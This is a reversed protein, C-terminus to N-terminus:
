LWASVIPCNPSQYTTASTAKAQVQTTTTPTTAKKASDLPQNAASDFKKVNADVVGVQDKVVVHKAPINSILHGRQTNNANERSKNVEAKDVLANNSNVGYQKKGDVGSSGVKIHKGDHGSTQYFSPFKQIANVDKVRILAEQQVRAVLEGNQNYFDGCLLAKSNAFHPSHVDYLLWEDAKVNTNFFHITHDLSALQLHQSLSAMQHPKTAAAIIGWDSMYALAIQQLLAMLTPKQPQFLEESVKVGENHGLLTGTSEPNPYFKKITTTTTTTKTAQKPPLANSQHLDAQPSIHTNDDDVSIKGKIKVWMLRRAPRKTPEDSWNEWAVDERNVWKIDFPVERRASYYLLQRNRLSLNENTSLEFMDQTLSPLTDYHPVTSMDYVQTHSHVNLDPAAFQLLCSFIVNGYQVADVRRTVFAKTDKLPTVKYVIPEEDDGPRIFYGHFSHISHKTPDITNVCATISQAVLMGGYVRGWKYLSTDCEGRFIWNDIRELHLISKLATPETTTTPTNFSDM